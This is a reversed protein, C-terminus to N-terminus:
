LILSLREDLTAVAPEHEWRDLHRRRVGVIRGAAVPLDHETALDAASILLECARDLDGEQAHASAQNTLMAMRDGPFRTEAASLLEIADRTRGLMQLCNGRFGVLAREVDAGAGWQPRLYHPGVPASAVVTAAQELYRLSETEMRVQAHEEAIRLLGPARLALPTATSTLMLAADLHRRAMQPIGDRGGSLVTSLLDGRIMHVLVLVETDDAERALAEALDLHRRADRRREAVFAVWGTLTASGAAISLLRRGLAGGASREAVRWRLSYLHTELMPLLEAPPRMPRLRAYNETLSAWGDLVDADVRLGASLRELDLSVPLVAPGFLAGTALLRAFQRRRVDDVTGHEQGRGALLWELNLGPSHEALVDFLALADSVKPEARGGEIRALWPRSIGAREALTEQTLGVRDRCRRLRWGFGGGVVKKREM